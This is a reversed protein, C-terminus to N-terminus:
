GCFDGKKRMKVGGDVLFSETRSRLRGSVHRESTPEGENLATEAEGATLRRHV